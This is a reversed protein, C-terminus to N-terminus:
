NEYMKKINEYLNNYEFEVLIMVLVSLKKM